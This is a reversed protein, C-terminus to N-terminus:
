RYYNKTQSCASRLQMPLIWIDGRDRKRQRYICEGRMSSALFHRLSASHYFQWFTWWTSVCLPIPYQLWGCIVIDLPERELPRGRCMVYCLMPFMVDGRVSALQWRYSKGYEGKKFRDVCYNGCDCLKRVYRICHWKGGNSHCSLHLTCGLSWTVTILSCNAQYFLLLVHAGVTTVASLCCAIPM